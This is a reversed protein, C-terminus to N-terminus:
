GRGVSGDVDGSVGGFLDGDLGVTVLREQENKGVGKVWTPADSNVGFRGCGMDGVGKKTAISKDAGKAVEEGQAHAEGPFFALGVCIALCIM